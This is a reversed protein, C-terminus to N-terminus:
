SIIKCKLTRSFSDKICYVILYYFNIVQGFVMDVPITFNTIQGSNGAAAAIATAAATQNIFQTVGGAETPILMINTVNELLASTMTLTNNITTMNELLTTATMNGLLTTTTMNEQHLTATEFDTTLNM